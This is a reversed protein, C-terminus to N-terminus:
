NSYTCQHKGLKIYRNPSHGPNSYTSRFSRPSSRAAVEAYSPRTPSGGGWSDFCYMPQHLQPTISYADPFEESVSSCRSSQSSPRSPRSIYDPLFPDIPKVDITHIQKVDPIGFDSETFEPSPSRPQSISQQKVERIAKATHIPFQKQPFQERDQKLAHCAKRIHGM